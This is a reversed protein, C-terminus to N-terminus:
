TKIKTYFYSRNDLSESRFAKHSTIMSQLLISRPNEWFLPSNNWFSKLFHRCNILHAVNTKATGEFWKFCLIKDFNLCVFLVLCFVQLTAALTSKRLTNLRGGKLGGRHFYLGSVIMQRPQVHDVSMNLAPGNNNNTRLWRQQLSFSSDNESMFCVLFFVFKQFTVTQLQITVSLVDLPHKAVEHAKRQFQM